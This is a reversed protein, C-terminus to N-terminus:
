TGYGRHKMATLEQNSPWSITLLFASDQVAEIKHKISAELSLISGAKLDHPTGQAIFRIQGKLVQVSITGDAHHEKLTASKEMSILVLRLDHKKLLTKAFHGSQWPKKHESEAIEDPLDFQVLTDVM